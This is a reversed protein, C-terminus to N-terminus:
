ASRGSRERLALLLPRLGVSLLLSLTRLLLSLRRLLLPWPRFAIAIALMLTPPRMPATTPGTAAASAAGFLGCPACSVSPPQGGPVRSGQSRRHWRDHLARSGVRAARRRIDIPSKRASRRDAARAGSAPNGHDTPRWDDRCCGSGDSRSRSARM